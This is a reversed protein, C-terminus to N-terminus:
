DYMDDMDDSAGGNELDALIKPALSTLASMTDANGLHGLAAMPGGNQVDTCFSDVNANEERAAVMLPHNIMADVGGPKAMQGQIQMLLMM